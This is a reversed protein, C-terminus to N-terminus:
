LHLVVFKVLPLYLLLSSGLSQTFTKKNNLLRMKLYIGMGTQLVNVDVEAEVTKTREQEVAEEAMETVQHRAVEWQTTQENLITQTNQREAALLFETQAQANMHYQLEQQLSQSYLQAEQQITARCTQEDQALGERLHQFHYLVQEEVELLHRTAAHSCQNEVLNLHVQYAAAENQERHNLQQSAQLSLDHEFQMEKIKQRLAAEREAYLQGQNIEFTLRRAQTEELDRQINIRENILLILFCFSSSTCRLWTSYSTFCSGWLSM